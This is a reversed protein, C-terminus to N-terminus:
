KYPTIKQAAFKRFRPPTDAYFLKRNKAPLKKTNAVHFNFREGCGSIAPLM